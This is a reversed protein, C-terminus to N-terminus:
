YILCLTQKLRLCSMKRLLLVLIKHNCLIVDTVKRNDGMYIMALRGQCVSQNFICSGKSLALHLVLNQVGHIQLALTADGNLRLGHAADVLCAVTLLIHEVKNISGAMDIKGILHRTCQSRALTRQQHNVRGLANLRLGQRVHVQRQVVIQLNDRNDVFNVQWAGVRVVNFFFNFVNDTYISRVCHKATGLGAQTNLIHQLRNHRAHRCRCSIGGCRQLRQHKVRLKIGILAYHQVHANHLPAQALAHLDAHHCCTRFKIDGLHAVKLWTNHVHVLQLLALYAKKSGADLVNLICAHAVSYSIRLVGRRLCQWAVALSRRHHVAAQIRNFIRIVIIQTIGQFLQLEIIGRQHKLRFGRGGQAKAEAAAKQAKQMHINDLLAQLTFIVQAQNGSRRVYNVLHEASVALHLHHIVGREKRVGGDNVVHLLRVYISRNDHGLVVHARHHLQALFLATFIIVHGIKIIRTNHNM